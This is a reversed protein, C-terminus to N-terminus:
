KMRKAESRTESEVYGTYGEMRVVSSFTQCITSKRERKRSTGALAPHLGSEGEREAWQCEVAPRIKAMPLTWPETMITVLLVETPRRVCISSVSVSMVMMANNNSKGHEHM